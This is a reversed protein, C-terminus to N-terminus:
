VGDVPFQPRTSTLRPLAPGDSPGAPAGGRCILQQTSCGDHRICCVASSLVQAPRLGESPALAGCADEAM